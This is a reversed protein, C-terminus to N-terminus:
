TFKWGSIRTHPIFHDTAVSSIPLLIQDNPELYPNSLLLDGTSVTSKFHLIAQFGSTSGGGHRGEELVLAALVENSDADAAGIKRRPETVGSRQPDKSAQIVFM